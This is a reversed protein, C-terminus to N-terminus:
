KLHKKIFALARSHAEAVLKEDGGRLGHGAGPITILEYPVNHRELEEAMAASKEYPVDNDETGHIMMIPPYRYSINRVPCYPTINNREMEPDFDTVEKTWLGHQRLYHYYNSRQRSTPTTQNTTGTLVKGGVAQYVEDKSWLPDNELYYASPQTYWSGDVDGYGYYAVLAGPPPEVCVGTMMTLYGGASGGTVVIKNTDAYFLKAGQQNIWGFADRIDDIIAPLKVEPALRYDLSVLVFGEKQCLQRINKPVYQRSGMVLAGGHLWVVVPRLKTDDPRYVDAKIHVDDVTKYTHTKKIFAPEAADLTENSVHSSPKQADNGTEVTNCGVLISSFATFVVTLIMKEMIM